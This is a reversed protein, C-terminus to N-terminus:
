SLADTFLSQDPPNAKLVINEYEQLSKFFGPNPKVMSRVSKLYSVAQAATWQNLHMLYSAVVTASRSAGKMSLSILCSSAFSFSYWHVLINGSDPKSLIEDLWSVAKPLHAGLNESPLDVLDLHLYNFEDSFSPTVGIIVTLIHKINFKKLEEVNHADAINGLFLRPIVETAGFVGSPIIHKHLTRNIRGFLRLVKRNHTLFTFM